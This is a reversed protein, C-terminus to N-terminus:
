AQEEGPVDRSYTVLIVDGIQPKTRADVFINGVHGRHPQPQGAPAPEAYAVLSLQLKGNPERTIGNVEVKSTVLTEKL